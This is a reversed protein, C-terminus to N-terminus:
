SLVEGSFRPALTARLKTLGRYYRTKATNIPIDLRTAIDEFTAGDFQKMRIVAREAEGLRDLAEHVETADLPDLAGTGDAFGGGSSEGRGPTGSAGGRPDADLETIPVSAPRRTKKRVQNMFQLLCFPYVWAEVRAEGRFEPLKRWLLAFIEQALDALEEPTLPRGARANRAGLIRPVCRMREVFREVADAGGALVRRVLELDARGEEHEIV